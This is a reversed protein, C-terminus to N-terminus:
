ADDDPKWPETEDTAPTTRRQMLSQRMTRISAWCCYRVFLEQSKIYIRWDYPSAHGARRAGFARVDNLVDDHAANYVRQIQLLPASDAPGAGTSRAVESAQRSAVVPDFCSRLGQRPLAYWQMVIGVIPPDYPDYETIATVVTADAGLERALDLADRPTEVASKGMLALAALTRNVPVVAVDPFSQFESALIDTVKLTDWDSSNSLNLVPAVAVVVPPDTRTQSDAPEHRQVCGPLYSLGAIIGFALM